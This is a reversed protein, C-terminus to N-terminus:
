CHSRPNKAVQSINEMVLPPNIDEGECTFRPPILKNNDFEPSTLQM